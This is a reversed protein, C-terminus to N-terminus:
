GCKNRKSLLLLFGLAIFFLGVPVFVWSYRVLLLSLAGVFAFFLPISPFAAMLCPICMMSFTALLGSVLGIILFNISLKAKDKKKAM